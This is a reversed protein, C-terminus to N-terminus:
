TEEQPTLTEEAKELYVEEIRRAEIREVRIRLGYAELEFVSGDRPITHLRSFILGGLTDFGEDEPLEIGLRDSLLAIGVSGSARWRNQGVQELQQKEQPDFEDYINGVIEELLDELTIIGSFEGYEDIVIAIHIKKKQMDRFLVDTHLSEPVFYAPRLIACLSKQSNEQLNLLYERTNLIGLINNINKEYVPFRSLGSARIIALIEEQSYAVDIAVVDSGHTMAEKVTSNNFEFINDILEGEEPDITGREEGLDVMLRIEEETVTDEDAATKMRLLRLIGNTSVSLLWILPRMVKSIALIVRCAFRAVPMAKQMAIRKPVLEGFVLTFYSLILTIVIVVITDLTAEPISNWGLDQTIWRVLPDSFSEAAFASALFGALTIGIQIASLFGSPEEVMKLLRGATKDGAEKSKRLKAPNLSIVAIETAAFFANLLILIVQLLLQGGINDM